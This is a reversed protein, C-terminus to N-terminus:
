GVANKVAALTAPANGYPGGVYFQEFYKRYRMIPGDGDCLLPQQLHKKNHWVVIDAELGNEEGITLAISDKCAQLEVSDEDYRKHTFAFRM